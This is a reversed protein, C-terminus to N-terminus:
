SLFLVVCLYVSHHALVHTTSSQWSALYRSRQSGSVHGAELNRDDSLCNFGLALTKQVTVTKVRGPDRPRVFRM